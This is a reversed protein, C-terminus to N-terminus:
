LFPGLLLPLIVTADGYINAFEADEKIKKWSIAEELKAGSLSGDYEQATTVYV